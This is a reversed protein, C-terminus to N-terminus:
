AVRWFVGGAPFSFRGQARLCLGDRSIGTLNLNKREHFYDAKDPIDRAKAPNEGICVACFCKVRKIEKSFFM